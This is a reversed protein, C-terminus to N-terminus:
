VTGKWNRYVYGEPLPVAYGPLSLAIMERAVKGYDARYHVASKTVLIPREEPAIGHARYVELDLPQKPLSTVLVTNGAIEVVATLGHRALTGQSM